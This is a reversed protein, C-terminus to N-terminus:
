RQRKYVDGPINKPLRRLIVSTAETGGTSAGLAILGHPNGVTVGPAVNVTKTNAAPKAPRQFRKMSAKSAIVIKAAIEQTFSELCGKQGASPKAVFDVAGARMAEFVIGSVSSVVVVPMPRQPMMIKLFDIGSMKPMEVDLTMVDPKLALIKDKADFPNEATGVVQIKPHNILSNAIATRYFVSDDVILLKIKNENGIAKM